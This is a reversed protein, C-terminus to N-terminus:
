LGETDYLLAKYRVNGLFARMRKSQNEVARFIKEAKRSDSDYGFERAWREFDRSDEFSLADCRLCDLVDELTPERKLAPGMSFPVKMTKTGYALTERTLTCMYHRSGSPMDDINPNVDTEEYTMTLDCRDIFDSLTIM